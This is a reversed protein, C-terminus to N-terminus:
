LRFKRLSCYVKYICMKAHWDECVPVLGDARQSASDSNDRVRQIGRAREVTLQDGGFLIKHMQQQVIKVPEHVGDVDVVEEQIHEVMPVYHHLAKVIDMM